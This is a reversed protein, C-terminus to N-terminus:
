VNFQTPWVTSPGNPNTYYEAGHLLNIMERDEVVQALIDLKNQSRTMRRTLKQPSKDAKLTKRKNKEVHYAKRQRKRNKSTYGAKEEADIIMTEKLRPNM